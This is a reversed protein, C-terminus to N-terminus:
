ARMFDAVREGIMIASLNTNARPINPMIAADAVRLGQLGHVRGKADVVAMPDSVPGMKCTGIPHVLHSVRERLFQRLADDDSVLEAPPGILSETLDAIPSSNLLAWARRVGDVMKEMDSEDALLNIDILPQVDSDASKLRVTGTSKPRQLTPCLMFLFRTDAVFRLQPTFEADQSWMYMQMDNQEDSGDATFRLGVQQLPQGSTVVGEKPRAVLVVSPHDKLNEGV